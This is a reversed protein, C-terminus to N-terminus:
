PGDFAVLEFRDDGGAVTVQLVIGVGPAHYTEEVVDPDLPSWEEVVLVDEYSGAPVEIAASLDQVMAMDEAEGGLYELRYADGVDPDARMAIGAQAGDVGAEWSAGSGVADRDQYTTIDEGLAWVNGDVDQAFWASTEEVVTGDADHAASRVVVASIGLVEERDDTVEVEIQEIGGGENGEYIWRSGPVLPLYPNDVDQVFDAPDLDPSYSAGDGLDILAGSSVADDDGCASSVLALVLLLLLPRVRTM